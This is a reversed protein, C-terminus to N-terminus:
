AGLNAEPESGQDGETDNEPAKGEGFIAEWIADKMVSIGKADHGLLMAKEEEFGKVPAQMFEATTSDSSFEVGDEKTSGELEPFTFLGKPLGVYERSGDEMTKAFMVAVYPPTDNGVSVIGDESKELGFLKVRDELPLKHFGAEVEITGNAVAMEAVQNDGYAKEIDQDKSVSIEQLFKIREPDTVAQVDEGHVMYYFETLGTFSRYNKEAM